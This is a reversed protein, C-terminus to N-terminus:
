LATYECSINGAPVFTMFFGKKHKTMKDITIPKFAIKLLLLSQNYQM